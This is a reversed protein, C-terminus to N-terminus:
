QSLLHPPVDVQWESTMLLSDPLLVASARRSGTLLVNSLMSPQVCKPSSVNQAPCMSPQVCAPSSVSYECFPRVKLELAKELKFLEEQASDLRPKWAEAEKRAQLHAHAHAHVHLQCHVTCQIPWTVITPMYGLMCSTALLWSRTTGSARAFLQTSQQRGVEEIPTAIVSCPCV